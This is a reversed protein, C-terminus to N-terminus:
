CEHKLNTKVFTTRYLSCCEYLHRMFKHSQQAIISASCRHKDPQIGSYLKFNKILHTKTFYISNCSIIRNNFSIQFESLNLALCVIDLHVPFNGYLLFLYLPLILFKKCLLNKVSNNKCKM